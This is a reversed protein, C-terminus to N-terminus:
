LVARTILSFVFLFTSLLFVIGFVQSLRFLLSTEMDKTKASWRLGCFLAFALSIIATMLFVLWNGSLFVAVTRM